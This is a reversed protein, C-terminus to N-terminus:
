AVNREWAPPTVHSFPAWYYPHPWREATHLQATRLAQAPPNGAALLEYFTTMLETTSGDHAVWRSVVAGSAGAALFAWALGIPEAADGTHRGTECASLTVLSGTVDLELVEASTVWRDHLRLASFLPNDPRYLGHCAVHVLSPGPLRARLAYWTASAGLLVDAEPLCAALAAAEQEMLPAREDPVALVLPPGSATHSSASYVPGPATTVTWRELLYSGGDHLAHFPVQHLSRHPVIVLNGGDADLLPLVPALLLDYLAALVDQAAGILAAQHRGTFGSGLRFRSWQASLRELEVSVAPMVGPLPVAERDDDHAVFAVADTGSVHYSIRPVGAVAGVPAPSGTTSAPEHGIEWRLRAGALDRELETARSRLRKRTAADTVVLLAGYVAGLDARLAVAADGAEGPLRGVAGSMLDVLSRAKARDSVREAEAIDVPRGRAVLLAVLEDHAALNEARFATRVTLGPLANGLLEVDDVARRLLDVAEDLEGRRRHLRARRLRFQFWLHPSGLQELVQGAAALHDDADSADRAIDAQRLRVVALPVLWGGAALTGAADAALGRAEDLRGAAIAVEVEALGIRALEARADTERFMAAAAGLSAAADDLRGEALDALAITFQATASDHRMGAATTLAAAATAESRADSFLGVELYLGAIALRARASEADAGLEDMTARTSELARLAAVLEGLQQHAQALWGRVKASWLRDGAQALTDGAVALADRAERARGLRLLELGRNAMPRPVEEPMGLARYVEESREFAAIAPEHEGLLGSAVGINDWTAAHLWDRLADEGPDAPVTNLAALLERGVAVADRHRGLDDLVQMRGLDTRLAALHLGADWWETRASHILALAADLEGREALVRARLYRARARVPPWRSASSEVLEALESATRPNDHVLEEVRDLVGSLGAEDILGREALLARREAAGPVALLDDLSSGGVTM